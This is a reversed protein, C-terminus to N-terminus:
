LLALTTRQFVEVPAVLTATAGAVDPRDFVRPRSGERSPCAINMVLSPEPVTSRQFM